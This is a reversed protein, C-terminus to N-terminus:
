SKVKRMIAIVRDGAREFVVLLPYANQWQSICEVEGARNADDLVITCGPALLDWLQPIAQYRATPNITASPGDIFLFEIPKVPLDSPNLSYWGNEALPRLLVTVFGPVCDVTESYRRTDNEISVLRAGTLHKIADAIVLTSIGSGLELINLPSTNAILERLKAAIAPTISFETIPPVKAYADLGYADPTIGCEAQRITPVDLLDISHLHGCPHALSSYVKFGLRKASECFWLDEGLKTKGSLERPRQWIVGYSKKMAAIVKHSLMIAGSGVADRELLRVGDREAHSFEAYTTNRYLGNASRMYCNLMWIGNSLVPVPAAVIDLGPLAMELLNVLEGKFVPKTDNDILLLYDHGEILFEESAWNRAEQSTKFDYAMRCDIGFRMDQSMAVLFSALYPNVWSTRETGCLVTVQIRQM